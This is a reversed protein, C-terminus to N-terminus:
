GFCRLTTRRYRHRCRRNPWVLTRSQGCTGCRCVYLCAYAMDLCLSRHSYLRTTALSHSPACALSLSLAHKSCCVFSCACARARARARVKFSTSSAPPPAVGSEFVQALSATVTANASGRNVLAVVYDGGSLPGAWVETSTAAQVACTCTCDNTHSRAHPSRRM